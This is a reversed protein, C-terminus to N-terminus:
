RSDVDRDLIRPDRDAATLHVDVDRPDRHCEMAVIAGLQGPLHHGLAEGKRRHLEAEALPDGPADRVQPSDLEM